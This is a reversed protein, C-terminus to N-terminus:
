SGVKRKIVLKVRNNGVYESIASWAVEKGFKVAAESRPEVKALNAVHRIFTYLQNLIEANVVGRATAEIQLGNAEVRVSASATSGSFRRLLDIVLQLSSTKLELVMDEQQPLKEPYELEEIIWETEPLVEFAKSDLKEGNSDYISIRLDGHVSEAVSLTFSISLPPIGSFEAPEVKIHPSSAEVVVKIWGSYGEVGVSGSVTYPTGVRLKEPMNLSIEVRYRKKEYFLKGLKVLERAKVDDISFAESGRLVMLKADPPISAKTRQLWEDYALEWYVLEVDTWTKGVRKLFSEVNEIIKASEDAVEAEARSRFVPKWLIVDGIRAAYDLSGVLEKVASVLQESRVLPMDARDTTKIFQWVSGVHIPMKQPDIGMYEGVITLLHDKTFTIHAVGRSRLTEDVQEVWTHRRDTELALGDICRIGEPASKYARTYTKSLLTYQVSRYYKEKERVKLELLKKLDEMYSGRMEEAQLRTGAFLLATVDKEELSTTAALYKTIELLADWASVTLLKGLEPIARIDEPSLKEPEDFGEVYPALVIINNRGRLLHISEDKQVPNAFVLLVPDSSSLVETCSLAESVSSVVKVHEFLQSRNGAVENLAERLKSLAEGKTINMKVQEILEDLSPISALFWRSADSDPEGRVLLQPILVRLTDLVERVDRDVPTLYYVLEEKTPYLHYNIPYGLGLLSRIWIITLLKFADKAVQERLGSLYKSLTKAFEDWNPVNLDAISRPPGITTELIYRFVAYESPVLGRFLREDLFESVLIPMHYPMILESGAEDGDVADFAGSRIARVTDIAIKIADRTKQLYRLNAVVMNLLEIYAPHFPYTREINKWLEYKLMVGRVYEPYVRQSHEAVFKRALESLRVQDLDFIRKKLIEVIDIKERVPKIAVPNVRYLIDSVVRVLEPRHIVNITERTEAVGGEETLEYPLAIVVVANRIDFRAMVEALNMLFTSIKQPEMKSMEYYRGIEDILVLANSDDLVARLEEITPVVEAEDSRRVAEYRGVMHAIYGWVTKITYAGVSLPRVPSPALNGSSGVVVVVKVKRLEDFHKAYFEAVDRDLIKLKDYVEDASKANPLVNAFIHYLLTLSHTKGGGIDSLLLILKSNVTYERGGVSASRIGLLTMAAKILLEKMSETLYTREFFAVPDLIFTPVRKSVIDVLSVAPDYNEDLVESRVPLDRVKIM